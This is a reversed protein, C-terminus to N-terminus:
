ALRLRKDAVQSLLYKGTTTKQHEKREEQSQGEIDVLPEQVGPSVLGGGLNGNEKRTQSDTSLRWPRNLNVYKFDFNREVLLAFPKIKYNCPRRFTQFDPAYDARGPLFLTVSRGFDPHEMPPVGPVGM